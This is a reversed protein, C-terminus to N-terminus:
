QDKPFGNRDLLPLGERDDAPFPLSLKLRRKNGIFWEFNQDNDTPDKHSRPYHVNPLPPESLLAKLDRVNPLGEFAGGYVAGMADKFVQTWRSAFDKVEQWGEDLAEYRARPDLLELRDIAVDVSGLGLPKAFGLRHHMGEELELSWLLAGLEVPALNEFDVRFTFRAGEGVPYKLTRNQDSQNSGPKDQPHPPAAEDWSFARGQHRYFKRGRLRADSSNYDVEEPEGGARTLYFATATPKPTSLIALTKKEKELEFQRATAHSFRVRSAYAVRIEPDVREGNKKQYVWGFVRCAPCLKRYDRCRRLREPLLYQRRHLYPLRPMSVPRLEAVQGQSNLRAYVLDNKKLKRGRRVFTSPFPLTDGDPQWRSHGKREVYRRNREWYGELHHNYEEVVLSDCKKRCGDPVDDTEPPAPNEDDWRFFLREDHKNEINPGTLHLWGFRKEQQDNKRLTQHQKALVVRDVQFSRYRGSRHIVPNRQVLAAVRLGTGAKEGGAQDGHLDRYLQAMDQIVDKLSSNQWQFTMEKSRPDKVRPPYARAVAGARTTVPRGSLNVPSNRTCDLLELEAGKERDVELVRAPVMDPARAERHELPYDDEQFVALCSNTVAEFLSRFMGRLSSGPIVPQKEGVQLFRYTKHKANGEKVAHSDSVFIPTVATLTCDISGILGLYRDHPPPLCRDLLRRAEPSVAPSAPGTLGADRRVAGMGTSPEDAAAPGPPALFRVFNYPNLFLYTPAGGGDGAPQVRTAYPGRPGEGEQYTVNIGLTIQDPRLDQVESIHFFIDPGGGEPRIFGFGRDARWSTIRGNAM